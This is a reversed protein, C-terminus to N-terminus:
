GFEETNNGRPTKPNRPILNLLRGSDNYITNTQFFNRFEIFDAFSPSFSDSFTENVYNSVNFKGAVLKDTYTEGQETSPHKVLRKNLLPKTPILKVKNLQPLDAIGNLLFLRRREKHQLRRDASDGSIVTENLTDSEDLYEPM